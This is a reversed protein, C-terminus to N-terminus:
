ARGSIADLAELWGRIRATVEEPTLGTSDLVRADEAAKLPAVERSADRKDRRDIEGSLAPLSVDIGKEKLQKYRRLAREEPSATLFVKLTAAPFVVTGMDRGDAVLGPSRAFERQRRLLARRVEPMSAIRSAAEGCAETRLLPTVESDDLYVQESDTAASFSVNMEAAARALAGSDGLSIGLRDAVLAVLRYLAGSDLLHWGLCRALARSVTGKGSGTPGDIALVPVPDTM